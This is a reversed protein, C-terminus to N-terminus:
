YLRQVSLYLERTNDATNPDTTTSGSTGTNSKNDVRFAYYVRYWRPNPEQITLDFTVTENNTQTLYVGDDFQRFDGPSLKINGHASQGTHTSVESVWIKVDDASVNYLRPNFTVNAGTGASSANFQADIRLIGGLVPLNALYTSALINTGFTAAPISGHYYLLEGIGIDGDDNTGGFAFSWTVGNFAYYGPRDVKATKTSPITVAQSVYVLTGIQEALYVDDKAKLQDGTLRPAIVGDPSTAIDPKGVIDLTANPIGTNIGIQSYLSISFFSLAATCLLLKTM